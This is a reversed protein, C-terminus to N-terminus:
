AIIGVRELQRILTGLVEAVELTSASNVFLTRDDPGGSVFWGSSRTVPTTGYFGVRSGDHNLTGFLNLTGQVTLASQFTGSSSWTNFNTWLNNGGLSVGGGASIANQIANATMLASSSSQTSSNSINTVTNGFQLSMAQGFLDWRRSTDGLNNGDQTPIINSQVRSTILLVDGTSNGIFTAPSNLSVSSGNFVHSGTWFPSDGLQVGGAGASIANQIANATMLATSSSQTSSNSINNVGGGLQLNLGQGFLDWRRSSSGLNQGSSLPQIAGSIRSNFTVIDTNIDNGLQVSSNFITILDFTHAGVWTKNGALGTQTTNTTVFSGGGAGAIIASQIASATMLATTSSETSSLSITGVGVNNSLNLGQGFLDWRRVSSGLNQGSSLPEIAGSIRSNFTAIDTNIDNGLQVSSNFLTILNFIHAGDWTKNGTLGTSQNTNTTVFGTNLTQLNVADLPSIPNSVNTIRKNEVDLQSNTLTMMPTSGGGLWSYSDSTLSDLNWVMGNTTWFHSHNLFSSMSTFNIIPNQLVSNMDLPQTTLHDGLNDAGGASLTTLNVLINGSGIIVDDGVKRIVGNGQGLTGTSHPLIVYNKGIFSPDSNGTNGLLQFQDEDLFAIPDLNDLFAYGKGEPTSFNMSFNGADASIGYEGFGIVGGDVQFRLVDVGTINFTNMRLDDDANFGIFSTAGAGTTLNIVGLGTGVMVDLGPGGNNVLRFGGDILGSIGNTHEGTLSLERAGMQPNLSQDPNNPNALLQFGTEDLVAIPNGDNLFFYDRNLPVNFNMATDDFRVAIAYDTPNFLGSDVAFKLVDINNINQTQMNLDTQMKMGGGAFFERADITFIDRTVYTDFAVKELSKFVMPQPESDPVLPNQRGGIIDFESLIDAFFVGNTFRIGLIDEIQNKNFLMKNETFEYQIDSDDQALNEFLLRYTKGLPVNFELGTNGGGISRIGHNTGALFGGTSAWEVVDVDFINNTIMDLNRNARIVNERIEFQAFGGGGDGVHFGHFGGAGTGFGDIYQLELGLPRINSSGAPGFHTFAIGTTRDVKSEYLNLNAQGSVNRFLTMAPVGDYRWEFQRTTAFTSAPISWKLTTDNEVASGWQGVGIFGDAGPALGNAYKLVDLNTIDFTSMKLDETAIHNGLNDGGGTASPNIIQGHFTGGGDATSFQFLTQALATTDLQAKLTTGNKVSSPLTLLDHGGTGDQTLLVYFKFGITAPPINSFALGIDGALTITKYHGDAQNLNLNVTQLSKIGLAEKPYLIPFNIGAGVGGTGTTIDTILPVWGGDPTVNSASQFQLFVLANETLDFSEDLDLNGTNGDNTQARRVKITLGNQARLLVIQGDQVANDIFHIEAPSEFADVIISASGANLHGRGNQIIPFSADFDAVNAGAIDENLNENDVFTGTISGQVLQLVGTTTSTIDIDGITATAGSTNGTIIGGLSFVKPSNQNDYFIRDIVGTDKVIRIVNPLWSTIGTTPASIGLGGGVVNAGGGQNTTFSKAFQEERIRAIEEALQRIRIDNTDPEYSM